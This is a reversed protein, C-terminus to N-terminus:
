AQGPSDSSSSVSGSGNLRGGETAFAEGDGAAVVRDTAGAISEALLTGLRPIALEHHRCLLLPAQHLFEDLRYVSASWAQRSNAPVPRGSDAIKRGHPTTRRGPPRYILRRHDTVNGKDDVFDVDWVELLRCRNSCRWTTVPREGKGRCEVDILKAIEPRVGLRLHHGGFISDLVINAVMESRNAAAGVVYPALDDSM